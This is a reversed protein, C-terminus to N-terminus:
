RGFCGGDVGVVLALSWRCRGAVVLVVLSLPLSSSLPPCRMVLHFVAILAVVAAALAVVAVAHLSRCLCRRSCCRAVAVVAHLINQSFVVFSKVSFM